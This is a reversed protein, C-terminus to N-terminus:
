SASPRKDDEDSDSDDDEEDDTSRSPPPRGPPDDSPGPADPPARGRSAPGVIENVQAETLRYSAWADVYETRDDRGSRLRATRRGLRIMLFAGVVFALLLAASVFLTLYLAHVRAADLLLARLM